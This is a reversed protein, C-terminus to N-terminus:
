VFESYLRAGVLRSLLRGKGALAGRDLVLLLFYGAALSTLIMVADEAWVSVQQLSGHNFERGTRDVGAVVAALETGLAELSRDAPTTAVAIGDPDVIAAGRSGPCREVLKVIEAEFNV